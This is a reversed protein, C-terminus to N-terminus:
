IFHLFQYEKKGKIDKNNSQSALVFLAHMQM